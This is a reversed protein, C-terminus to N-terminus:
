RMKKIFLGKPYLYPADGEGAEFFTDVEWVLELSDNVSLSESKVAEDDGFIARLTDNGDKLAILVRYDGDTNYEIFRLTDTHKLDVMPNIRNTDIRSNFFKSPSNVIAATSESQPLANQVKAPFQIPANKKSEKMRNTGCGYVVLIAAAAFAVKVNRRIM